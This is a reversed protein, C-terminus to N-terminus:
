AASQMLAVGGFADQVRIANMLRTEPDIESMKWSPIRAAKEIEMLCQYATAIGYKMELESFNLM